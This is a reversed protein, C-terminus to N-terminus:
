VISKIYIEPKNKRGSSMPDSYAVQWGSDYGRVVSAIATIYTLNDIMANYTTNNCICFQENVFHM